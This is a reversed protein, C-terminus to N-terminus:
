RGQQGSGARTAEAQALQQEAGADQSNAKSANLELQQQAQIAQAKEWMEVNQAYEEDSVLLKEPAGSLEVLMKVSEDRNLRLMLEPASESYQTAFAWTDALGRYEEARLMRAAPSIYKIYYIDLNYQIAEAVEPPIFLPMKGAAVIAKHQPSNEIVGLEGQEFLVNFTRQVTPTFLESIQRAFISGLSEARLENRINAEGLTMRTQNNLDLLRDVYFHSMIQNTLREAVKNATNLEGVTAIAGMPAGQNIRSSSDLVTVANPSRDIVGNGLSGDDMVWIPPFTTLEAAKHIVEMLGNLEVIDPLAEMAPSRGYEEDQNKYFRGVKVPPETYGSDRLIDKTDMFIHLSEIPYNQANQINPNYNKRPRIVQLCKFKRDYDMKEYAAKIVDIKLMEEGYEEIIQPANWDFRYFLKNVRGHGDECIYTSKLNWVRYEVMPGGREINRGKFIGIGATGFAGSELMYEQLAVELGADPYEMHYVMRRNLETYYAKVGATERIYEPRQIRFTRAGSKWLSGLLSSAMINNARVATSDYVDGHRYFDGASFSETFGQKRSFVWKAIDEWQAEWPKRRAEVSKFEALVEAVRKNEM